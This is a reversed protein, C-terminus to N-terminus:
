KMYNIMTDAQWTQLQRTITGKGQPWKLVTGSTNMTTMKLLQVVYCGHLPLPMIKNVMGRNNPM